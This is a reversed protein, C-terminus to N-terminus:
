LLVLTTTTKSTVCDTNLDREEEGGGGEAGGGWRVRKLGLLPVKQVKNYRTTAKSM